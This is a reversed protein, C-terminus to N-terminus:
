SSSSSSSWRLPRLSDRTPSCLAHHGLPRRARQENPVLQTLDREYAHGHGHGYAYVSQGERTHPAAFPPSRTRARARARTRLILHLSLRVRARCHTGRRPRSGLRESVEILLPLSPHDVDPRLRDGSALSAGSDHDLHPRSRERQDLTPIGLLPIHERDGPNGPDLGGLARGLEDRQAMRDHERAALHVEFRSSAGAHERDLRTDRCQVARAGLHLRQGRGRDGRQRHVVHQLGDIAAHRDRVEREM